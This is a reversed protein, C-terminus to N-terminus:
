LFYKNVKLRKYMPLMETSANQFKQFKIKKYKPVIIEQNECCISLIKKDSVMLEGFITILTNMKLYNNKFASVFM